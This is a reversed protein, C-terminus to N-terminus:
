NTLFHSICIRASIQGPRPIGKQDTPINTFRSDVLKKGGSLSPNDVFYGFIREQQM